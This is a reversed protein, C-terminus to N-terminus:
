IKDILAIYLYVLGISISTNLSDNIIDKFVTKKSLESERHYFLVSKSM